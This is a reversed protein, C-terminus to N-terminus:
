TGDASRKLNRNLNVKMGLLSTQYTAAYPSLEDAAGPGAALLLAFLAACARACTKMTNFAVPLSGTVM